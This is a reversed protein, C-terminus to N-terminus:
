DEWIAIYRFLVGNANVADGTGVQFGTSTFAQIGNGVDATASYYMCKDGQGYETRHIAVQFSVMKVIVYAYTKAALDVGIDINRNDLGNGTYTGTKIGVPCTVRASQMNAM